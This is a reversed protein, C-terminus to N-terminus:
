PKKAEEEKNDCGGCSCTNKGIIMYLGCWGMLGTILMLAAVIGLVFALAGTVVKTYVLFGLVVGLIVRVLRDAKGVNRM